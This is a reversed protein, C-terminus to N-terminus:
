PSIFHTLFIDVHVFFEHDAQSFDDFDSASRKIKDIISVYAYKAEHSM